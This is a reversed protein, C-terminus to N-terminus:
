SIDGSAQESSLTVIVSDEIDCTTGNLPISVVLRYNGSQDANISPATEGNLLAGNRYWQYMAQPNQIDGNLVVNEACTTIDGGLDVTANFSNGEIFVASDYNEDTQDAIILKISYEVNPVITATATLVQTRGNYNTDGINYGDFYQENEAACFGVVEDHITSTNVPITTGPIVAINTYAGASAAPRILFAFGDSYDCPFNGFYEESALIYNFQIQNSISIFDFEITTANLTNTIGLANELDADTGWNTEGENLVNANTTNGSSNADGTTIVIGNEFPFNSNGREFYGYSSLGNISGNIPSSINSTEVCGQVLNNEILQQVGVTNDVSIQQASSNHIAGLLLGFLLCCVKKYM